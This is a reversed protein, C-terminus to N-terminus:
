CALLARAPQEVLRGLAGLFRGADAGDAIRHDFACTLTVTHRAVVEDDVVWPRKRIAGVAL